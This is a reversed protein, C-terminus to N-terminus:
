EKFIKEIWGSQSGLCHSLFKGFAFKVSKRKSMGGNTSTKIVLMSLNQPPMMTVTVCDLLAACKRLYLLPIYVKNRNKLM